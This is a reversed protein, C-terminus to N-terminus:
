ADAVLRSIEQAVAEVSRTGDVTVLQERIRYHDLVPRTRELFTRLRVRQFEISDDRREVIPGLCRDCTGPSRPPRFEVHYSAGCTACVRRGALRRLVVEEPADLFIAVHLRLGVGALIRDLVRAQEVTRPFGDLVVGRGRSRGIELRGRIIELMTEDDAFQGRDIASRVRRGVVTGRAIEERLIEGTSIRSLGARACLERAQVGKGVGPYGFFIVISDSAPM